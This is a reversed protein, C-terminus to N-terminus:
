LCIRCGGGVWRDSSSKSIYILPLLIETKIKNGCRKEKGRRREKMSKDDLEVKESWQGSESEAV